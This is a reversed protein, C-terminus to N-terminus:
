GRDIPGLIEGDELTARAFQWVKQSALGSLLGRGLVYYLKFM